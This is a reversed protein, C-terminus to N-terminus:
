TYLCAWFFFFFFSWDNQHGHLVSSSNVNNGLSQGPMTVRNSSNHTYTHTSYSTSEQSSNYESSGAMWLCLLIVPFYMKTILVVEVNLELRNRGGRALSIFLVCCGTKSTSAATLSMTLPTWPIESLQGDLDLDIKSYLLPSTGIWGLTALITDM